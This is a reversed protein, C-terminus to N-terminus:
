VPDLPEQASKAKPLEPLPRHAVEQAEEPPMGLAQLVTAASQSPIDDGVLIGKSIGAHVGVLIGLIAAVALAPDGAVFRGATIGAALDQAFDMVMADDAPNALLANQSVFRAWDPDAQTRFATHRIAAAVREAPDELGAKMERLREAHATVFEERVAEVAEARSGFHNYFSGFGVDAAETIQAIRAARIGHEAFAKLAGRLLRQRIESTRRASRNTPEAM